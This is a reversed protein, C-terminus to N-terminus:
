MFMDTTGVTRRGAFIGTPSRDAGTVLRQLSSRRVTPTVSTNRYHLRRKPCYRPISHRCVTKRSAFFFFFHTLLSAARVARV